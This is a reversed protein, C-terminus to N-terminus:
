IWVTSDLEAIFQFLNCIRVVFLHIAFDRQTFSAPHFLKHM